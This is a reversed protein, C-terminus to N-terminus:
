SKFDEITLQKIQTLEEDTYIEPYWHSAFKYPNEQKNINYWIQPYHVKENIEAIDSKEFKKNTSKVCVVVFKFDNMFDSDVSLTLVDDEYKPLYGTDYLRRSKIRDKFQLYSEETMNGYVNYPFVYGDDYDPNTNTYFAAIVRYDAKEFLTNFTIKQTSALFGDATSYISELDALDRPINITRFHEKKNIDCEYKLYPYIATIQNAVYKKTDTDEIILEGKIKQDEGYIDCYEKLIGEPYKISYKEEYPKLYAVKSYEYLKVGGFVAGTLVAIILVIFLLQKTFIKKLIPLIRNKFNIKITSSFSKFREKATKKNESKEKKSFLSKAKDKIKNFKLQKKSKQRRKKKNKNYAKESDFWVLKKEQPESEEELVDATLPKPPELQEGNEVQIEANEKVKIPKTTEPEIKIEAKTPKQKEIKPKPESLPESVIEEDVTKFTFKTQETEPNNKEIFDRFTLPASNEEQTSSNELKADREKREKLLNLIEDIENDYNM